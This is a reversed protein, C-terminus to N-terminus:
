QKFARSQLRKLYVRKFRCADLLWPVIHDGVMDGVFRNMRAIQASAMDKFKAIYNLAIENAAM